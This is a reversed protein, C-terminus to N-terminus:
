NSDSSDSQQTSPRQSDKLLARNHEGPQRVSTSGSGSIAETLFVAASM